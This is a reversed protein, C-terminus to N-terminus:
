RPAGLKVAAARRWNSLLGWDGGTCSSRIGAMKMSVDYGPKRSFRAGEQETLHAKIGEMETDRRRDYAHYGDRDKSWDPREGLRATADAMLRTILDILRQLNDTDTM